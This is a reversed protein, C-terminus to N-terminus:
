LRWRLKKLYAKGLLMQLLCDAPWVLLSNSLLVPLMWARLSLVSPAMEWPLVRSMAALMLEAASIAFVTGLWFVFWGPVEREGWWGLLYGIIGYVGALIGMFAGSVAGLMIGGAFGLVAGSRRGFRLACPVLLLLVMDPRWWNSPFASELTLLVGLLLLIKMLSLM